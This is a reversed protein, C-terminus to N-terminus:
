KTALSIMNWMPLFIALAFLLVGVAIVVTLIPEILDTLTAVLYKIEQDYYYAISEAM